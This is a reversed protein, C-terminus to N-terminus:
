RVLTIKGTAADGNAEVRYFYVGAPLRAGHADRGNWVVSRTLSRAASGRDTLDRVLRGAATYVRVTAEAADAGGRAGGTLDFRLTTASTFPNPSGPYLQVLDGRGEMNPVSVSVSSQIRYIVDRDYASVYLADGSPSFQFNVHGPTFDYAFPTLSGGPTLTYVTDGASVFLDNGFGFGKAFEIAIPTTPFTALPAGAVGLSDAIRICDCGEGFETFYLGSGYAGGPGFALGVPALGDPYCFTDDLFTSIGGGSSVECIDGPVDSSNAVYLGSGFAGGPGFALGVPEGLGSGGGNCSACGALSTFDVVNGLNDIQQITGGCDLPQGFDRNNASLYLFDGYPSGTPPFVIDQPDAGPVLVAFPTVVGAESVRFVSDALSSQSVNGAVYLDTGFASGAPAFAISWPKTVVAFTDVVFGPPVSPQAGAHPAQALSAFISAAILAWRSLSQYAKM